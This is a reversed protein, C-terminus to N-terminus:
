LKLARYSPNEMHEQACKGGMCVAIPQGNKGDCKFCRGISRNASVCIVCRLMVRKNPASPQWDDTKVIVHDQGQLPAM